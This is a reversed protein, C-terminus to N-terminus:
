EDDTSTEVEENDITQEIDVFLYEDEWERQIVKQETRFTYVKENNSRLQKRIVGLENTLVNFTKKNMSDEFFYKLPSILELEEKAERRFRSILRMEEAVDLLDEDSLDLLEVTHLLDNRRNDAYQTIENLADFRLKIANSAKNVYTLADALEKINIKGFQLKRLNDELQSDIEVQTEESNNNRYTNRKELKMKDELTKTM